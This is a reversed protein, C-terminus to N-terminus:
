QDDHLTNNSCCLAVPLWEVTHITKKLIQLLISPFAFKSNLTGAAGSKSVTRFHHITFVTAFIHFVKRYNAVSSHM